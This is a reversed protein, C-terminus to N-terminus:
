KKLLTYYIEKENVKKPEFDNLPYEMYLLSKKITYKENLLFNFNIKGTEQEFKTEVNLFLILKIRM